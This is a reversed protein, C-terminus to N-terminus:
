PPGGREHLLPQSTVVRKIPLVLIDFVPFGAIRQTIRRPAGDVIFRGYLLDRYAKEANAEDGFKLAGVFFGVSRVNLRKDDMFQFHRPDGPVVAIPIDPGLAYAIRAAQIWNPAVVYANAGRLDHSAAADTLESWDVMQWNVDFKPARDYFLRTLAGTRTQVAFGIALLPVV